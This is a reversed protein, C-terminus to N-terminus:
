GYEETLERELELILQIMEERTYNKLSEYRDKIVWDDIETNDIEDSLAM